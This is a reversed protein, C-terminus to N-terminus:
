IRGLKSVKSRVSWTRRPGLDLRKMCFLTRGLMNLETTQEGPSVSEDFSNDDFMLSTNDITNDETEEFNERRGLTDKTEEASEQSTGGNARPVVVSSMRSWLESRRRVSAHKAAAIKPRPIKTKAFPHEDSQEYDARAKALLKPIRRASPSQKTKSEQVRPAPKSQRTVVSTASPKTRSSTSRHLREYLPRIPKAAVSTNVAASRMDPVRRVPPLTNVVKNSTASPMTASELSSM